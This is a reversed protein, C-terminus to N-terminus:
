QPAQVVIVHNMVDPVINKTSADDPNPGQIKLAVDMGMVVHGFLNYLKKLKAIDNTLCIFFQSGNTNVGSNAM